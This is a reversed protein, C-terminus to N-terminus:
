PQELPSSPLISPPHLDIDARCTPCNKHEKLWTDICQVHFAHNCKPLLRLTEDDQFSNLCVSCVYCKTREVFGDDTKFKFMTISNIVSPHLGDTRIYWIPNDVQPDLEQHLFSVPPANEGGELEQEVAAERRSESRSRSLKSFSHCLFITFNVAIVVLFMILFMSPHGSGNQNGPTPHGITKTVVDPPIPDVLICIQPCLLMCSAPCLIFHNNEAECYPQCSDNNDEITSNMM